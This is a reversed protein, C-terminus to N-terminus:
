DGPKRTGHNGGKIKSVEYKGGRVYKLKYGSRELALKVYVGGCIIGVFFAIILGFCEM